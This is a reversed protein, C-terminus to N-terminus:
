ILPQLNALSTRRSLSELEPVTLYDLLPAPLPLASLKCQPHEGLMHRIAVRTLQQLSRPNREVSELYECFGRVEMLRAPINGTKQFLLECTYKYIVAKSLSVKSLSNFSRTHPAM